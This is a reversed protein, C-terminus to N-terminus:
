SFNWFQQGFPHHVSHVLQHQYIGDEKFALPLLFEGFLGGLFNHEPQILHSCVVNMHHRMSRIIQFQM